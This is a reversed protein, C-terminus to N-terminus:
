LPYVNLYYCFDVRTRREVLLGSIPVCILVNMQVKKKLLSLLKTYNTLVIEKPLVETSAQSHGPPPSMHSIEGVVLQAQM